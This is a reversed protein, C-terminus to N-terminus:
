FNEIIEFVSGFLFFASLLLLGGNTKGFVGGSWLIEEARQRNGAKRKCPMPAFPPDAFLLRVFVTLFLPCAFQIGAFVFEQEIM